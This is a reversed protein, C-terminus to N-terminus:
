FLVKLDFESRNQKLLYSLAFLDDTGVDTDLIIRRPKTDVECCDMLWILMAVLILSCVRRTM